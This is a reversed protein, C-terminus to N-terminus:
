IQCECSYNLEECPNIKQLSLQRNDIWATITKYKVSYLGNNDECYKMVNFMWPVDNHFTNGNHQEKWTCYEVTERLSYDSMVICYDCEKKTYREKWIYPNTRIRTEWNVNACKKNIKEMDDQYLEWKRKSIKDKNEQYHNRKREHIKDKNEQYYERDTRTPIAKNVCKNTQIYYREREHM